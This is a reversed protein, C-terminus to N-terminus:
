QRIRRSRRQLLEVVRTLPPRNLGVSQGIPEEDVGDVSAPESTGPEISVRESVAQAQDSLQQSPRVDGARRGRGGQGPEAQRGGQRLDLM